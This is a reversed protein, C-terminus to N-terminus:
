GKNDPNLRAHAPALTASGLMVANADLKKKVNLFM